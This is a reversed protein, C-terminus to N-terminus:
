GKRGEERKRREKERRGTEREEQGGTRGKEETEEREEGDRARGEERGPRGYASRRKEPKKRCSWSSYGGRLSISIAL